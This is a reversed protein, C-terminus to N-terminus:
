ILMVDINKVRVARYQFLLHLLLEFFILHSEVETGGMFSGRQLFHIFALLQGYSNHRYPSPSSSHALRSECCPCPLCFGIVHLHSSLPRQTESLFPFQHNPKLSRFVHCVWQWPGTDPLTRFLYRSRHYTLCFTKNSTKTYISNSFQLLSYMKWLLFICFNLARSWSMFFPDCQCM